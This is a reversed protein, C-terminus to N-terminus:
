WWADVSYYKVFQLKREWVKKETMIIEGNRFVRSHYYKNEMFIRETALTWESSLIFM